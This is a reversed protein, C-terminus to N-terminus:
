PHVIYIRAESGDAAILEPETARLGEVALAAFLRGLTLGVALAPGSATVSGGVSDVSVEASVSGLAAVARHVSALGGATLAGHSKVQASMPIADEVVSHRAERTGLRFMDDASVRILPRAGRDPDNRIFPFGRVVAVPTSTLKGKVLDAASALEDAIAIVTAELLHGAPDHQGRLDWLVDLGSAGIATDIVGDRWPRGMTDSVIVAVDVDLRARVTERIREASADSDLPLLAVTGAPVNSADIGAAAMVFGHHTEVIQTDGRRAVVRATEAALHEDRTGPVLRDEAKSVVKSTVVLIDGDRLGVDAQALLAGLDDGPTVEPLGEVGWIEIRPTM